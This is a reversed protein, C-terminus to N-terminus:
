GDVWEALLEFHDRGELSLGPDLAVKFGKQPLFRSSAGRYRVAAHARVGDLAVDAPYTRDSGPNADLAALDAPAIWLDFRPLREQVPPYSGPEPPPRAPLSPPSPLQPPGVLQARDAAGGGCGAAAVGVAVVLGALLGRRRM